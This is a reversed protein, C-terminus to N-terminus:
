QLVQVALSQPGQAALSQLGQLALYQSGVVLQVLYPLELPVPVLLQRVRAVLCRHVLRDQVVMRHSHQQPIGELDL